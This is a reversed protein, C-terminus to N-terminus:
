SIAFVNHSIVQEGGLEALAHDDLNVPFSYRIKSRWCTVGPLRRPKTRTLIRLMLLPVIASSFNRDSSM